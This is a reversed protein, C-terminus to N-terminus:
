DFHQRRGMQQRFRTAYNPDNQIQRYKLVACGICPSWILLLIFVTGVVAGCCMVLYALTTSPLGSRGALSGPQFNSLQHDKSSSHRM